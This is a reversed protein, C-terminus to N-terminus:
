SVVDPLADLLAPFSERAAAQPDAADDEDAAKALAEFKNTAAHWDDFEELTWERATHRVM